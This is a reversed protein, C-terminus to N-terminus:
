WSFSKESSQTRFKKAVLWPLEDQWPIPPVAFLSVDCVHKCRETVSWIREAFSIIFNWSPTM